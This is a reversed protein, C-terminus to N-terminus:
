HLAHDYDGEKLGLPAGPATDLAPARPEAEAPPPTVVAGTVGQDQPQPSLKVEGDRRDQGDRSELSAASAADPPATAVTAGAVEQDPPHPSLLVDSGNPSTAALTM